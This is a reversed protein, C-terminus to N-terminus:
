AAAELAALRADVDQWAAVIIPILATRDVQWPVYMWGDVATPSTEPPGEPDGDRHPRQWYGGATVARPYIEALEQAFPGIDQSGDARWDFDHMVILRMIESALARDTPGRDIKLNADSTTNYSTGSATCTITGVQSAGRVFQHATYDGAGWTCAGYGALAKIRLAGSGVIAGGAADPEDGICVPGSPLLALYGPGGYLLGLVGASTTSNPVQRLKVNWVSFDPFVEGDNPLAFAQMTQLGYDGFGAITHLAVVWDLSETPMAAPGNYGEIRVRDRAIYPGYNDRRAFLASAEVNVGAVGGSTGFLLIHAPNVYTLPPVTYDTFLIPDAM